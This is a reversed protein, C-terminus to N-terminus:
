PLNKVAGSRHTKEFGQVQSESNLHPEPPTDFAAEVGLAKHHAM